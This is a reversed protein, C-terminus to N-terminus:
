HILDRSHWKGEVILTPSTGVGRSSLPNRVVRSNIKVDRFMVKFYPKKSTVRFSNSFLEILIPLRDFLSSPPIIGEARGWDDKGGFLM